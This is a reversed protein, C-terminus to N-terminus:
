GGSLQRDLRDKRAKLTGLRDLDPDNKLAEDLAARASRLYGLGAAGTDAMGLEHEATGQVALAASRMTGSQGSALSRAQAAAEDYRDARLLAHAYELQVRPQYRGSNEMLRAYGRAAQDFKGTELANRSVTYQKQFSDGSGAGDSCGFLALASLGALAPKWMPIPKM